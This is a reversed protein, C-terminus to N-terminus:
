SLISAWERIHWKTVLGNVVFPDAKAYDEASEKSPFVGMTTLPENPRDLFAGAMLLKGERHLENSRKLHAAIVQPYKAQVEAISHFSTEFFAVYYKQPAAM